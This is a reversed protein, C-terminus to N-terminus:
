EDTDALMYLAGAQKSAPDLAPFTEALAYGDLDERIIRGDRTCVTYRPGEATAHIRVIYEAGALSGADVRVPPDGLAASAVPATLAAGRGSVADAAPTYPAVDHGPAAVSSQPVILRAVTIFLVWAAAFGAYRSFKAFRRRPTRLARSAAGGAAGNADRVFGTADRSARAADHSLTM